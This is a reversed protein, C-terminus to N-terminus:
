QLVLNHNLGSHDVIIHLSLLGRPFHVRSIHVWLGEQTSVRSSNNIFVFELMKRLDDKKIMSNLNELVLIKLRHVSCRQHERKTPM